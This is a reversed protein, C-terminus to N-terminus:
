AADQLVFSYKESFDATVLFEGTKLTMKRTTYFSAQERAIFSHPCL